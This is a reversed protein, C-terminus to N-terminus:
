THKKGFNQNEQDRYKSQTFFELMGEQFAVSRKFPMCISHLYM